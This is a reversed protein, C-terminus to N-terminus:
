VVIWGECYVDQWNMSKDNFWQKPAVVKKSENANLYAGWWSFSSNVIINHSCKSMLYLDREDQEVEGEKKSEMYEFNYQPFTQPVHEKCWTIDDSFIIFKVDQGCLEQIKALAAGYYADTQQTHFSHGVYDGRRYHVSCTTTDNMYSPIEVGNKKETYFKILEDKVNRFYKESQFYGELSVDGFKEPIEEYHFHPEEYLQFKETNRDCNKDSLEIKDLSSTWRFTNKFYTPRPVAAHESVVKKSHDLVLLKNYRKAYAYGAAVQFMQNALGGELGVYLYEQFPRYLSLNRTEGRTVKMFVEDIWVIENHKCERLCNYIFLYDGAHSHAIASINEEKLYVDRRILVNNTCIEGEPPFKKWIDPIARQSDQHYIKFIIIKPKLYKIIREMEYTFNFNNFYDDDDLHCIYDGRFKDRFAYLATEAILMGEGKTDNLIVHEYNKRTLQSALAVNRKLTMKRASIQRQTTRTVVTILPKANHKQKAYDIISFTFNKKAIESLEKLNKPGMFKYKPTTKHTKSPNNPHRWAKAEEPTLMEYKMKRSNGVKTNDKEQAYLISLVIIPVLLFVFLIFVMIKSPSQNLYEFTM